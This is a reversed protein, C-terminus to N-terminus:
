ATKEEAAELPANIIEDVLADVDRAGRSGPAYASIPVGESSAQAFKTCQRV